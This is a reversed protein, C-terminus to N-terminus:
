VRDPRPRIPLRPRSCGEYWVVASCNFLPKGGDSLRSLPLYAHPLAGRGGLAIVLRDMFQRLQANTRAHIEFSDAMLGEGRLSDKRFPTTIEFKCVTPECNRRYNLCWGDSCARDMFLGNVIKFSDSELADIEVGRRKVAEQSFGHDKTVVMSSMKTIELDHQSICLSAVVLACIPHM